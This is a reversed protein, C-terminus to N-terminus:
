RWSWAHAIRPAFHIVLAVFAVAGVAAMGSVCAVLTVHRAREEARAKEQQARAWKKDLEEDLMLYLAKYEM